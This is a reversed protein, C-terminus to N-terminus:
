STPPEFGEVAHIKPEIGLDNRRPLTYHKVITKLLPLLFVWFPSFVYSSNGPGQNSAILLCAM